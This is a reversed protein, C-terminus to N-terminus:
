IKIKYLYTYIFHVFMVMVFFNYDSYIIVFLYWTVHALFQITYNASVNEFLILFTPQELFSQM